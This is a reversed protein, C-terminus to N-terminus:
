PKTRLPIGVAGGLFDTWELGLEGRSGRSRRGRLAEVETRATELREYLDMAEGGGEESGLRWALQQAQDIAEALDALWRSREAITMTSPRPLAYEKLGSSHRM